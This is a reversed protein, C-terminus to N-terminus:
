LDIFGTQHLSEHPTSIDVQSDPVQCLPKYACGDEQDLYFFPFIMSKFVLHVFPFFHHNIGDESVM